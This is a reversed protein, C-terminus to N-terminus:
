LRALKLALWTQVLDESVYASLADQARSLAELAEKYAPSELHITPELRRGLYPLADEIELLLKLAELTQSPGQRLAELLGQTRSSLKGFEAPHELAWRVKGVSGQAFALVEPDATLTQLLAEPLPSFTVELSRSVLTPLVQERSPAVLILRAFAPPEELVKLLANAAPEGLWHAGDIVAVKTKFRPYTAIWDLLSQEESGERPAIQELRIQPVRAKRGTRTEREPAIELYDPHLELRCSACRGCPPFGQPCNLGRAFWGAVTRRGVGEPGSFLFTQSRLRPLLELIRQHGLIQM